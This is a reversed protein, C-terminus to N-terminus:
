KASGKLYKCKNFNNRYTNFKEGNFIEEISKNCLSEGYKEISSFECPLMLLNETIFAAYRGQECPPIYIKKENKIFRYLLSEFCPELTTTFGKKKLAGVFSKVYDDQESVCGSLTGLGKRKYLCLSISDLKGIAGKGRFRILENEDDFEISGSTLFHTITDISLHSVLVHLAVKVKRKLLLILSNLSNKNECLLNFEVKNIYTKFFKIDEESLFTGTTICSVYLNKSKAYRVFKRFDPHDNPDGSGTLVISLLGKKAGEDVIKKFSEYSMNKSEDYPKKGSCCDLYCDDKIKCGGVISITLFAPFSRMFSEKNDIVSTKRVYLDDKSDYIELFKYKKDFYASMTDTIKKTLFLESM